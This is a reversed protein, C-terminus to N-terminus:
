KAPADDLNKRPSRSQIAHIIMPSLSVVIIVIVFVEFNKKVIDFGGLFWGAGVSLTIWAASGLASFAFFRTWKMKGVGAMFPTYTRIIPFFRALSITKGGHKRFFAQTREIYEPKMVRDIKGSDIIQRGFFRGIFYNVNDGALAAFFVVVWVYVVNLTAASSLAGAAFLLSDGPLFPTVVLGTECFLILALIGYIWVGYDSTLTQLMHYPDRLLSIFFHILAMNRRDRREARRGIARLLMGCAVPVLRAWCRSYFRAGPSPRTEHGVVDTSRVTSASHKAGVRRLPEADHTPAPGSPREVTLRDVEIEEVVQPV